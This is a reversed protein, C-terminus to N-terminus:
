LKPIENNGTKVIGFKGSLMIIVRDIDQGNKYLIRNKPIEHIHSFKLMNKVADISTVEAIQTLTDSNTIFKNIVAQDSSNRSDINKKLINEMLNVLEKLKNSSDSAVGLASVIVSDPIPMM